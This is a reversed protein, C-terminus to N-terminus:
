IGIKKRLLSWFQCIAYVFAIQISTGHMFYFSTQINRTKGVANVQKSSIDYLYIGKGEIRYKVNLEIPHMLLGFSKIVPHKLKATTLLYRAHRFNSNIGYWDVCLDHKSHGIWEYVAENIGYIDYRTMQEFSKFMYKKQGCLISAQGITSSFSSHEGADVFCTTHSIYPFVFYRNTDILYAMYYKSWAKKWAKIYDPMDIELFREDNFADYWKKFNEWQESTWCEGWSASSQKLYTDSGDLLFSIPLSGKMENQYLSIGGVRNDGGYFAVADEVYQYFYESVYIDDELIIVAKFYKTLDGCQIIHNRLGLREKQINVYKEGYKWEFANVYSYLEEDGSADISIVLPIDNHCYHAVQLSNLLRKMSTLRNYGIAVIAIKDKNDKSNIDM